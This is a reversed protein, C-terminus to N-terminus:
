GPPVGVSRFGSGSGLRCRLFNDCFSPQLTKFCVLRRALAVVPQHTERRRYYRVLPRRDHHLGALVNLRRRLPRPWTRLRTRDPRRAIEPKTETPRAVRMSVPKM